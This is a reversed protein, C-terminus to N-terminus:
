RTWPNAYRGASQDAVIAVDFVGSKLSSGVQEYGVQKVDIKSWIGLATFATQTYEYAASGLLYPWVKKGAFDGYTKIKDKSDPRILALMDVSYFYIGQLSKHKLPEKQFIGTDTWAQLNSFTSMYHMDTEGKDYARFNITSGPGVVNKMRLPIGAKELQQNAIRTIAIGVSYGGTTEGAAFAIWEKVKQPTPSPTATPTATPSPKPSPSAAPSPSPAAPKPSPAPQSCATVLLALMLGTLLLLYIVRKM